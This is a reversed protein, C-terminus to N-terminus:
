FPGCGMTTSWSSCELRGGERVAVTTVSENCDFNSRDVGVTAASADEIDVVTTYNAPRHLTLAVYEDAALEFTREFTEHARLTNRYVAVTIERPPGDNWVNLGHPGNNAPRLVGFRSGVDVRETPSGDLRADFEVDHAAPPFQANKRFEPLRGACGATGGVAVTGLLACFRRRQM